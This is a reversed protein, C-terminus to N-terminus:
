ADLTCLRIGLRKTLTGIDREMDHLDPFDFGRGYGLGQRAM